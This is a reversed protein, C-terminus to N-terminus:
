GSARRRSPAFSLYLFILGVTLIGWALDPHSAALYEKLNQGSDATFLRPFAEVLKQGFGDTDARYNGNGILVDMQMILSFASLLCGLLATGVSEGICCAAAGSAFLLYREHLQVPWLFFMIWPTVLAALMRRDNRRAQMGIAIGSIVLFFGFVSDFLEKSSIDTDVAPWLYRSTIFGPWHRGIAPLTFAVDDADQSWGFRGEFLAPMNSAPGRTMYPWHITGFEFSCKFWGVGGHFLLMCSLLGSALTGALVYRLNRWRLFMSTLSLVIGGGLGLWWFRRNGALLFPWYVAILIIVAGAALWIRSERASADARMLQRRLWPIVMALLLMWALWIAAPVDFVRHMAFLDPPYDSVQTYKQVERASQVLNNPLYTLLWPSAIAAIALVLGCIWRLSARWRGQVLPWIVFVPAVALMQGKLMAGIGIAIGAVFWWEWSALLAALLFWPIIWSDWQVWGHANLIIDPRFWILLAAVVGQWVGDFDYRPKGENGRIVWHRTLFFACVASFIELGTNFWLVPANFEYTNQWADMLPRHADPPFHRRQWAGWERMVLLRLPAYDLWPVWLSNERDPVQPEMKDYQNLYGEPGTAVLGWYAGRADDDVYRIPTAMEFVWRRLRVGIAFSDALVTAIILWILVRLAYKQRQGTRPESSPGLDPIEGLSDLISQRESDMGATYRQVRRRSSTCTVLALQLNFESPVQVQL